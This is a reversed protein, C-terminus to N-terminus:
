HGLAYHNAIQTPTLVTNYVAAAALNCALFASTGGRSAVAFVGSSTGGHWANSNSSNLVGNVYMKSGTADSTVVLHKFTSIPQGTTSALKAANSFNLIWQNTGGVQLEFTSIFNHGFVISGNFAAVKVWIEASFAPGTVISSSATTWKGSSGNFSVSKGGVGTPGSQGLTYGGAYTGNLGAILEGAVTGATEQMPWFAIAGDAIITTNYDITGSTRHAQAIRALGLM